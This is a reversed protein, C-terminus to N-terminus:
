AVAAKHRDPMLALVILGILSLIGLLGWASNYGKGKAYECCGWIFVLAGIVLLVLSVTAQEPATMSRSVMQLILGLGVGINTNRKHQPLM